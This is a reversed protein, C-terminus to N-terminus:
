VRRLNHLAGLTPVTALKSQDVHLAELTRLATVSEPLSTLGVGALHLTTLARWPMSSLLTVFGEGLSLRRVTNLDGCKAM